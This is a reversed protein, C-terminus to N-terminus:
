ERKAFYYGLSLGFYPKFVYRNEKPILTSDNGSIFQEKYVQIYNGVGLYLECSFNKSIIFQRGILLGLETGNRYLNVTRQISHFGHMEINKISTSNYRCQLALYWANPPPNKSSFYYKPSLGFSYGLSNYYDGFNWEGGTNFWDRRQWLGQAELSFRKTFVKEIRLNPNQAIGDQYIQTKIVIDSFSQGNTTLPIVLIFLLIHKLLHKM